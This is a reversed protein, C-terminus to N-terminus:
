QGRWIRAHLPNFGMRYVLEAPREIDWIALDASKGVELTGTQGLLGLARAAERTVGALCEDITLGFLTAAMNMTLLLSTLPSTGPNCDTAVAMRVGHQRFLGVPPKKTERIFYYAGPLITAVTGAKAMAAAGAEDTYELHDASLAGYRAALEAGHLNSLQDAHLKVPLGAAKAADFVRSIQEPSFAIGECFGDVADVLGEAAAAPLIENAVLDIFADKDGKAEPPLAHAGLFSTRVTVQRREGLVRAARLSKKENELDLGYGSKIEVSTVGEAILADLRPLSQAVLEHDSAARLAKVSSVIGGGAKAVEEYSAGALRMEFENARNGAHVLHTHCDILGPTIWRGECDAIKADQFLASPMDAEPGAYVILGDRAAIAGHEVIGLGAANEAMTALRANRWLRVEGARSKSEGAM